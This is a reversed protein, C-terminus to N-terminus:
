ARLAYAAVAATPIGTTDGALTALMYVLSPLHCASAPGLVFLFSPLDLLTASMALTSSYLGLERRM